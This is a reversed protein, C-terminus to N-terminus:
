YGHGIVSVHMFCAFFISRFKGYETLTSESLQNEFEPQQNEETCIENLNFLFADYRNEIKRCASLLKKLYSTTVLNDQLIDNSQDQTDQADVLRKVMKAFICTPDLDFINRVM